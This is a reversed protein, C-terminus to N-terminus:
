GMLSPFLTLGYNPETQMSIGVKPSSTPAASQGTRNGRMWRHLTANASKSTGLAVPAAIQKLSLTTEKRLRAALALKHPDNKWKTTLDREAWGLRELEEAIIREARSQASERRIEGSHHEGLRSEILELMQEKFQESGFCWGRRVTKLAQRLAGHFPASSWHPLLGVRCCENWGTAASPPMSTIFHRLCRPSFPGNHPDALSCATICIFM